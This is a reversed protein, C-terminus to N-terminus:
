GITVGKGNQDVFSGHLTFANFKGVTSRGMEEMTAANLILIFFSAEGKTNVENVVSLVAGDDESTAEPNPIFIPESCSCGPQDWIKASSKEDTNSGTYPKTLDFKILGNVVNTYTSRPTYKSSCVGWVYRYPKLNYKQNLCPMELDYGIATYSAVRRKNYATFSKNFSFGLWSPQYKDDNPASVPVNGLRYRRLEALKIQSKDQNNPDCTYTAPQIHDFDLKGSRKKGLEFSAEVIKANDYTCMDMYIVRERYGGPLEVEEDWANVSHFSFCPEAEYTAVHKGTHRDIIHFLTNENENWHFAQYASSYYMVALGNAMFYYPYNPIIVYNKTMSFSHIYAARLSRMTKWAGLHRWVPEYLRIEPAPLEKEKIPSYPGISFLQYTPFPGPKLVFNVFENTEEDFQHHSPSLPGDLYSSYRGYTIM